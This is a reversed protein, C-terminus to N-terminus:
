VWTSVIGWSLVERVRGLQQFHVRRMESVLRNERLHSPEADLRTLAEINFLGRGGDLLREFSRGLGPCSNISHFSGVRARTTFLQDIFM